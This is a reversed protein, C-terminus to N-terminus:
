CLLSMAISCSLTLMSSTQCNIMLSYITLMYSAQFSQLTIPDFIWSLKMSDFTTRHVDLITKHLDPITEQLHPTPRSSGLTIEQLDTNTLDLTISLGPAASFEAQAPLTSVSCLARLELYM